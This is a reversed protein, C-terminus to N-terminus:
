GFFSVVLRAGPEGVYASVKGVLAVLAVCMAIVGGCSMWYALRVHLGPANRVPLDRGALMGLVFVILGIAFLSLMGLKTYGTIDCYIQMNGCAGSLGAALLVVLWCCRPVDHAIRLVVELIGPNVDRLNPIQYVIVQDSM